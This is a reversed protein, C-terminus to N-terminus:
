SFPVRRNRFRLEGQFGSVRPTILLSNDVVTAGLMHKVVLTVFQAWGWVIIGAPPLPPTPREGYFELWSGGVGAKRMLWDVARMAMQEDGAELYAAAM